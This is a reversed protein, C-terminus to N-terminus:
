QPAGNEDRRGAFAMFITAASALVTLVGPAIYRGGTATIGVGIILLALGILLLPWTWLTNERQVSM